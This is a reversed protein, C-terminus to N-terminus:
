GSHRRRKRYAAGKRSLMWLNRDLRQTETAKDNLQRLVERLAPCKESMDREAATAELRGRDALAILSSGWRRRFELHKSELLSMLDRNLDVSFLPDMESEFAYPLDENWDEAIAAELAAVRRHLQEFTLAEDPSHKLVLLPIFYGTV